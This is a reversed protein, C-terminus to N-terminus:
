GGCCSGVCECFALKMIACTREVCRFIAIDPRKLDIGVIRICKVKETDGM